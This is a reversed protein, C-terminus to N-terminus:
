EMEKHQRPRKPSKQRHRQRERRHHNHHHHTASALEVLLSFNGFDAGNLSAVFDSSIHAPVDVFGYAKRICLNRLDNEKIGARNKALDAFADPSLGHELGQGIYLRCIDEPADSYHKETSKIQKESKLEKYRDGNTTQRNTKDEHRKEHRERSKGKKHKERKQQADDGFFDSERTKKHQKATEDSAAQQEEDLSKAEEAIHHEFCFRCLKALLIELETSPEEILGSEKLLKQATIIDRKKLEIESQRLIEYIHALRAGCVQEDSPLPTLSPRIDTQKKLQHFPVFDRPSVLSIAVGKRGARGTRGTRHIYVEPQEPISYNVVLDIQSIDLGRAAIDTAVLLRLDKARLKNMVANRQSQSLESNIRRADFGHRRLHVEVLRTDSKTNCFIIASNPRLTEILDCLAKPKATIDSAVEYYLHEISPAKSNDPEVCIHIPNSLFSSTLMDVRNTITASLFLGQRKDPLRSLIARVDELFGMSLMEDAEDLVVYHCKRINLIRQNLFDLVRGPTGVVIRKDKKLANAQAASDAGGILCVPSLAEDLSTIVMTVQLALERTPALILGMTHAGTVQAVTSRSNEAELKILLPLVYALTKGSGTQAQIVLDRGAIAPRLSKAQVPMPVSIGLRTLADKLRASPILETFDEPISADIEDDNTENQCPELLSSSDPTQKSSIM